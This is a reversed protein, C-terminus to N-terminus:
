GQQQKKVACNRCYYLRMMGTGFNPNPVEDVFGTDASVIETCRGPPMGHFIVIEGACRGVTHGTTMRGGFRERINEPLIRELPM